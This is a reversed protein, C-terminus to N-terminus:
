HWDISAGFLAMDYADVHHRDQPMAEFGNSYRVTIPPGGGVHRLLAAYFTLDHDPAISWVYSLQPQLLGSREGGEKGIFYARFTATLAHRPSLEHTVVAQGSRFDAGLGATWGGYRLVQIYLEFRLFTSDPGDISGIAESLPFDDPAWALIRPHWRLEVRNWGYAAHLEVFGRVDSADSHAPPVDHVPYYTHADPTHMVTTGVGIQGGPRIRADTRATFCASASM